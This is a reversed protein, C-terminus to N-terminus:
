GVIKSGEIILVVIIQMVAACKGCLILLRNLFCAICSLNCLVNVLGIIFLDFEFDTLDNGSIYSIPLHQWWSAYLSYHCTIWTNDSSEISLIMPGILLEISHYRKLRTTVSGLDNSYPRMCCLLVFAMMLVFPFIPLRRCWETVDTMKQSSSDSTKVEAVMQSTKYYYLFLFFGLLLPVINSLCQTPFFCCLLM